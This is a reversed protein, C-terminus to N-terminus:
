KRSSNWATWEANEKIEYSTRVVENEIIYMINTVTQDENPDTYNLIDNAVNYINEPTPDNEKVYNLMDTYQAVTGRMYFHHSVCMSRIGEADWKRTTLLVPEFMAEYDKM